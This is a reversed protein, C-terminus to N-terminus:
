LEPMKEFTGNRECSNGYVSDGRSIGEYHKIM